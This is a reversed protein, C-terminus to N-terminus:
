IHLLSRAGPQKRDFHSRLIATLIQSRARRNLVPYLPATVPMKVPTLSHRHSFTPRPASRGRYRVTLQGRAISERCTLVPLVSDVRRLRRGEEADFAFIVKIDAEMTQNGCGKVVKAKILDNVAPYALNGM